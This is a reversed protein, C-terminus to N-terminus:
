GRKQELNRSVETFEAFVSTSGKNRLIKIKGELETLRETSEQLTM